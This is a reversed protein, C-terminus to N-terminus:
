LDRPGGAGGKAAAASVNGNAMSKPKIQDPLWTGLLVYRYSSRAGKRLVTAAAAPVAPPAPAPSSKGGVTLGVAVAETGTAASCTTGRSGATAISPPLPFEYRFLDANKEFTMWRHLTLQQQQQQRGGVTTQRDELALLHQRVLPPLAEQEPKQEEEEEVGAAPSVKSLQMEIADSRDPILIV